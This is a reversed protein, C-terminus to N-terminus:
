LRSPADPLVRERKEIRTSRKKGDADLLVFRDKEIKFKVPDHVASKIPEEYELTYLYTGDSVVCQYRHTVKRPKAPITMMDISVLTGQEWDREKAGLLLTTVFLALIIRVVSQKGRM